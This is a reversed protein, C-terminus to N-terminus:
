IGDEFEGKKRAFLSDLAYVGAGAHTGVFWFPTDKQRLYPLM